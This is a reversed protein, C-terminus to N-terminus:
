ELSEMRTNEEEKCGYNEIWKEILEFKEPPMSEFVTDSTVVIAEVFCEEVSKEGMRLLQKYVSRFARIQLVNQQRPTM